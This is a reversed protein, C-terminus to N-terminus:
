RTPVQRVIDWLRRRAPRDALRSKVTRVLGLNAHVGPAEFRQLVESRILPVAVAVAYIAHCIVFFRMEHLGVAGAAGESIFLVLLAHKGGHPSSNVRRNSAFAKYPTASNAAENCAYRL